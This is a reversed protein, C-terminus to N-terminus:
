EMVKLKALPAMRVKNLHLVGNVVTYNDAKQLVEMFQTAREMNDCAMLTNMMQGIEIRGNPKLTYGGSFLNCSNNGSMRANNSDFIVFAPKKDKSFKVEQGMLEILQWKKNELNSDSFNKMLRYMEALDGKILNGAKDLHFLQNEGVKYKQGRDGEGITIVSGSEDWVFSGKDSFFGATKGLYDISREFKNDALLTISTKIGECDACPIVGKYVGEWDLSVKSNHAGAQSAKVSQNGKNGVLNDENLGNGKKSKDSCGLVTILLLFCSSIQFIRKM